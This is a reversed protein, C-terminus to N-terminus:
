FPSLICMINHFNWFLKYYYGDDDYIKCGYIHEKTSRPHFISCALLLIRGLAMLIRKGYKLVYKCKREERYKRKDTTNVFFIPWSKKHLYTFFWNESESTLLFCQFHFISSFLYFLITTSDLLIHCTADYRLLLWTGWGVHEMWWGGVIVLM